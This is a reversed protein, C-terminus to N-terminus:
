EGAKQTGLKGMVLQLDDWAPRKKEPSRLLYAPHFTPMLPIGLYDHFQGRLRGIPTNTELLAQAAFRGLAVIVDPQVARVQAQLFPRCASVEDPEPDRNDPPRCKVVNCIYVDQREFGMATIMRDLLEGAKGVFPRGQKDEHFGPGEGAFLIRANPNGEGFVITSRGAECLKCRTCDGLETQLADLTPREQQTPSLGNTSNDTEVTGSSDQEYGLVNDEQEWDLWQHVSRAVARVDRHGSM